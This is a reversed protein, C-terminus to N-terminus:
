NIKFRQQTNSNFSFTYMKYKGEKIEPPNYVKKLSIKLNTIYTTVSVELVNLCSICIKLFNWAHYQLISWSVITSKKFLAWLIDQFNRTKILRGLFSLKNKTKTIKLGDFVIVLKNIKGNHQSM